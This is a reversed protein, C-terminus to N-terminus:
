SRADYINLVLNGLNNGIAAHLMYHGHPSFSINASSFDTPAVAFLQVADEQEVTPDPNLNYLHYWHWNNQDVGHIVFRHEDPSFGWGGARFQSNLIIKGQNRITINTHTNSVKVAELQYTGNKSQGDKVTILEPVLIESVAPKVYDEFTNCGCEIGPRDTQSFAINISILFMLISIISLKINKM